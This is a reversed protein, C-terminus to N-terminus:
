LQMATGIATTPRTVGRTAATAIDAEEIRTTPLARRSSKPPPATWDPRGAESRALGAHARERNKDRCAENEAEDPEPAKEPAESGALVLVEVAGRASEGRRHRRLPGRHFVDPCSIHLQGPPSTMGRGSRPFLRLECDASRRDHIGNSTLASRVHSGSTGAVTGNVMRLLLINVVSEEIFPVRKLYLQRRSRRRDCAQIVKARPLSTAFLIPSPRGADAVLWLTRSEVRADSTLASSAM